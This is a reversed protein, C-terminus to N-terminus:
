EKTKRKSPTVIIGIQKTDMRPLIEFVGLEGVKEKIKDVLRTGLEANSAERGKFRIVIKVKDGEDLFKILAKLKVELDGIGINPRFQIEKIVQHTQKKKAEADKKQMQFKYKGYDLLKCVPPAAEPSVEVLDLGKEKAM